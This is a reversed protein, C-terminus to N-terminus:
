SLLLIWLVGVASGQIALSPTEQSVSEGEPHDLVAEDRFSPSRWGIHIM